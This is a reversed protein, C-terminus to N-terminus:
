HLVHDSQLPCSCERYGSFMFQSTQAETGARRKPKQIYELARLAVKGVSRFLRMNSSM